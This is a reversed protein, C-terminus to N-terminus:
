TPPRYREDAIAGGAAEALGMLQAVKPNLAANPDTVVIRGEVAPNRELFALAVRHADLKWVKGDKSRVGPCQSLGDFLIQDVSIPRIKEGDSIADSNGSCQFVQHATGM